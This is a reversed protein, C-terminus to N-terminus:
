NWTPVDRHETRLDIVSLMGTTRLMASVAGPGAVVSFRIGAAAAGSRAKALTTLGAASFFSIESLDAVLDPGRPRIEEHLCKWLVPASAMDVEGVATIVVTRPSTSRTTIVLPVREVTLRRSSPSTRPSTNM